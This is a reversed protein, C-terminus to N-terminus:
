RWGCGRRARPTRRPWKRGHTPMNSLRRRRRKRSASSRRSPSTARAATNSSIPDRTSIRMSRVPSSRGAVDGDAGRRRGPCDRREDTGPVADPGHGADVLLQDFLTRELRRYQRSCPDDSRDRRGGDIRDRTAVLPRLMGYSDRVTTVGYRLQIQAAELVIDPQRDITGSWRKTAITRAATFRSTCTPTSSGRSSSSAAATSRRRAPLCPSRAARVSARSGAM